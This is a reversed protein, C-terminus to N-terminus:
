SNKAQLWLGEPLGAQSFSKLKLTRRWVGDPPLSEGSHMGAKETTRHGPGQSDEM